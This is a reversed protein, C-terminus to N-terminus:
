SLFRDRVAKSPYTVKDIGGAAHAVRLANFGTINEKPKPVKFYSYKPVIIYAFVGSSIVFLVINIISKMKM